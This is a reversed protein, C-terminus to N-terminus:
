LLSKLEKLILEKVEIKQRQQDLKKEMLNNLDNSHINFKESNLELTQLENRDRSLLDKVVSIRQKNKEPESRSDFNRMRKQCLEDVFKLDLNKQIELQVKNYDESKQNRRDRRLDVQMSQLDKKSLKEVHDLKKQIVKVDTKPKPPNRKFKLAKRFDVNLEKYVKSPVPGNERWRAELEELKKELKDDVKLDKIERILERYKEEFHSALKNRDELFEKRKQFYDEIVSQFEHEIKSESDPIGGIKIWSSQINKVAPFSDKWNPNAIAHRLQDMLGRKKELNLLQNKEVQKEIEEILLLVDKQLSNYDGIGLHEPIKDRLHFLKMLYSGPNKGETVKEKIVNVQSKLKDFREEFYQISGPVDENKVEGIKRASQDGWPKLIVDDDQIFAFDFENEKLDKM